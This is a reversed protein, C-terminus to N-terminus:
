TILDQDMGHQEIDDLRKKIGEVRNIFLQMQIGDDYTLQKQQEKMSDLVADMVDADTLSDMMEKTLHNDPM